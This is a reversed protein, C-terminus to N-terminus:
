PKRRRDAKVTRYLWRAADSRKQFVGAKLGVPKWGWVTKMEPKGEQRSYRTEYEAREVKGILEKDVSVECLSSNIERFSFRPDPENIWRDITSELWLNPYPRSQAFDPKPIIGRRLAEQLWSRKIELKKMLGETDILQDGAPVHIKPRGVTAPDVKLERGEAEMWDLVEQLNFQYIRTIKEARPPLHKAARLVISSSSMGHPLGPNMESIRRGQWYHRM